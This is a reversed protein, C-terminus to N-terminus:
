EALEDNVVEPRLRVWIAGFFANLRQELTNFRNTPLQVNLEKCVQDMRKQVLESDVNNMKLVKIEKDMKVISAMYEQNKEFMDYYGKEFNKFDQHLAGYMAELKEYRTKTLSKVGDANVEPILPYKLEAPHASKPKAASKKALAMDIKMDLVKMQIANLDQQHQSVAAAEADLSHTPLNETDILVSDNSVSFVTGPPLNFDGWNINNPM